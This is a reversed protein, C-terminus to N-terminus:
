DETAFQPKYGNRLMYISKRIADRRQSKDLTVKARPRIQETGIEVCGTAKTEARFRAKSDIVRGSAMHKTPEMIDSIISTRWLKPEDNAQSKDVLRGNRYIYTTM